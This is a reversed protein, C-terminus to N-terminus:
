RVLIDNGQIYKVSDGCGYFVFYNIAKEATTSTDSATNRTYVYAYIYYGVSTISAAIQQPLTTDSTIGRSAAGDAIIGAIGSIQNAEPTFQMFVGNSVAQNCIQTVTSIVLAIGDNNAPISGSNVLLGILAAECASRFWMENMFVTTDTGDTNYGRQFFSMSQGNVQTAGLFNVRAQACEQADTDSTVAPTEGSFMRYMLNVVGGTNLDMAAIAAIPMFGSWRNVGYVVMCGKSGSLATSTSTADAKATCNVVFLKNGGNAQATEKIDELSFAGTASSEGSSEPPIFTFSVFVKDQGNADAFADALTDGSKMKYAFLLGPKYGNPGNYGYYGACFKYTASAAPFLKAYADYPIGVVQNNNYAERIEDLVSVFSSDLNSGWDGINMNDTTIVLGSSNLGTLGYSQAANYSGVNVYNTSSIAM